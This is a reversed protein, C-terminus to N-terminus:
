GLGKLARRLTRLTREAALARERWEDREAEAQELARLRRLLDALSLANVDQAVAAGKRPRGPGRGGHAKLHPRVQAVTDRTYDCHACGYVVAGDELLLERIQRFMVPKTATSLPSKAPQDEIVVRGEVVAATV